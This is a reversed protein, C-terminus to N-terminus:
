KAGTVLLASSGFWDWIGNDDINAEWFAHRRKLLQLYESKEAPTILERFAAIEYAHEIKTKEGQYINEIYSSKEEAKLLSNSLSFARALPLIKIDHLGSTYFFRPIDATTIGTNILALPMIVDYAEYVKNYLETFRSVWDQSSPYHGPSDCERGFSMTTVSSISGGAKVVRKMEQMAKKYDSICTFFTHSVVADFTSDDFPLDLADAMQYTMANDTGDAETNAYDIFNADKDIGTFRSGEVCSALYRSFAGTGCGVELVSMDNEISCVACVTQAFEQPLFSMRTAELFSPPQFLESWGNESQLMYNM